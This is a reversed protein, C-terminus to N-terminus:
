EAQAMVKQLDALDKKSSQPAINPKHSADIQEGRSFIMLTAAAVIVLVAAASVFPQWRASRLYATKKEREKKQRRPSKKQVILERMQQEFEQSFEHEGHPPISQEYEPLLVRGISMKLQRDTM